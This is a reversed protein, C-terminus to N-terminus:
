RDIEAQLKELLEISKPLSTYIMATRYILTSKQSWLLEERAKQNNQIAKFIRRQYFPVKFELEELSLLKMVEAPYSENKENERQIIAVDSYYSIIALKLENNQILKFNGTFQLEEYVATLYNPRILMIADTVINSFKEDDITSTSNAVRLLGSVANIKTYTRQIENKLMATDTRVANLLGILYERETRHEQVSERYNDVALASLVGVIILLLQVFIDYVRQGIKLIM